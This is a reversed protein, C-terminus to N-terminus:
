CYRCCKYKYRKEINSWYEYVVYDFLKVFSGNKDVIETWHNLTREVFPVDIKYLSNCSILREYEEYKLIHGDASKIYM